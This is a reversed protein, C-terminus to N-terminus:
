SNEGANSSHLETQWKSIEHLRPSAQYTPGTRSPYITVPNHANCDIEECLGFCVCVSVCACVCMLVRALPCGDLWTQSELALFVGHQMYVYSSVSIETVLSVVCPGM